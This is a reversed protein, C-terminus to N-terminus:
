EFKKKNELICKGAPALLRRGNKKKSNHLELQIKQIYKKFMLM